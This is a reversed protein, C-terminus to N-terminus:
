EHKDGCWSCFPDRPVTQSNLSLTRLNLEVRKNTQQLYLTHGSLLKIADFSALSAAIGSLPSYSGLKRKERHLKKVNLLDKNNIENLYKKFCNFCATVYPIITQGILTQHLNYGGGVIHPIKNKMCYNSIINSTYDVSPTDACNIVLDINEPLSNREFFKDDIYDDIADIQIDPALHQLNKILAEHKKSGVDKEFFYQRHLNSIDVIDSDVFIMSGVGSQALYAAINSGVAGIGIIMVKSNKLRNINEIVESTSHCYDEFFNIMRYKKTVLESPYLCDQHILIHKEILFSILKELQQLNIEPYKKNVSNLTTKGDFMHLLSIIEPYDIRIKTSERVNSNFFEVQNEIAIIGVSQRLRLNNM